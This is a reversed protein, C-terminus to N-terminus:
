HGPSVAADSPLENRSQEGAPMVNDHQITLQRRQAIVGSQAEDRAAHLVRCGNCLGGAARLGDDVQGPGERIIRRNQQRLVEASVEVEELGRTALPDPAEEIGARSHHVPLRHLGGDALVAEQENEGGALRGIRQGLLERLFERQECGLTLPWGGRDESKPPGESLLDAAPVEAFHQPRRRGPFRHDDRSVAPTTEQAHVIEDM